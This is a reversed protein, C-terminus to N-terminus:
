NERRTMNFRRAIPFLFVVTIGPELVRDPQRAGTVFRNIIRRQIIQQKVKFQAILKKSTSVFLM